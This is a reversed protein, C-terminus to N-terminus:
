GGAIQSIARHRFNYWLGESLKADSLPRLLSLLLSVVPLVLPSASLKVGRRGGYKLVPASSTSRTMSTATTRSFSNPGHERVEEFRSVFSSPPHSRSKEEEDFSAHGNGDSGDGNPTVSAVAQLAGSFFRNGKVISPRVHIVHNSSPSGHTGTSKLCWRALDQCSGQGKM